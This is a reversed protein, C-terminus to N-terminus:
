DDRHPVALQQAEFAVPEGLDGVERGDGGRVGVVHDDVGGAAGVDAVEAGVEQVVLGAGGREREDGGVARDAGGGLAELEGVARDDGRIAGRQNDGLASPPAEGREVDRGVAGEGATADEGVEALDHGVPM